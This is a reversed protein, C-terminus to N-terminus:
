DASTKGLIFVQSTPKLEQNLKYTGAELQIYDKQGVLTNGATCGGIGKNKTVSNRHSGKFFV